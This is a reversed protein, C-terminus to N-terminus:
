KITLSITKIVLNNVPQSQDTVQITLAYTGPVNVISTADTSTVQGDSSLTFGLNALTDPGTTVDSFTFYKNPGNAVISSAYPESHTAAPLTATVIHLVPNPIHDIGFPTTVGTTAVATGATTTFPLVSNPASLTVLGFAGDPRFAIGIPKDSGPTPTSFGSVLSFQTSGVLATEFGLVKGTDKGAVWVMQADPSVRVGTPNATIFTSYVQVLTGATPAATFTVSMAGTAYNVTGSAIGTGTISGNGNDLGTVAGAVVQLSGPNIPTPTYDGTFTTTTGDAPNPSLTVAPSATTLNITGLLTEFTASNPNTDIISLGALTAGNTQVVYAYLGDPSIDIHTPTGYTATAELSICSDANPHHAPVIDKGFNPSTPEVDFVCVENGGARVVYAHTVRNPSVFFSSAVKLDVPGTGPYSGHLFTGPSGVVTGFTGSSPNGDIVQINDSGANAVYVNVADPSTLSGPIAQPGVAVASTDGAANDLGSNNTVITDVGTLTNHLYVQNAGPDAIFMYTGNGSAALYNPTSGRSPSVASGVQTVSGPGGSTDFVAYKNSGNSGVLAQSNLINATFKASPCTGATSCPPTTANGDDTVSVTVTEGQGEKTPTGFLFADGTPNLVATSTIATGTINDSSGTSWTYQAQANNPSGTGGCTGTGLPAQCTFLVSYPQNLEGNPLVCAPYAGIGCTPAVLAQTPIVIEPDVTLSVTTPPTCSPGPLISCPDTTTTGAPTTASPIDTVKVQPNYTGVAGTLSPNATCSEETAGFSSCTFGPPFSALTPSFVYGTALGNSATYFATALGNTGYGRGTVGDPWTYDPYSGLNVILGLQADVKLSQPGSPSATGAPIASNAIDTVTVSPSYTGTGVTPSVPAATCTLTTLPSNGNCSFGAPFAASPTTAGTGNPTISAYANSGNLLGGTATYVLPTCASTGGPSCLLDAKVGYDRHVVADPFPSTLNSSIALPPLVTLSSNSSTVSNSPTSVNAADAVTVNLNNLTGASGGVSSASCNGNNTTTPCTFGAPFNNPTFTYGGLGPTAAPVTYTLPTCSGGSCAAGTGYRRGVVGAPIMSPPTVTMEANITIARSLSQLASPTVANATDSVTIQFPYTGPAATIASFGASCTVQNHAANTSCAVPAPVGNAAPAVVSSPVTLTYGTGGSNGGTADYVLAKFGAGTNGYTRSTVGPAPPDVGTADSSWALPAVVALTDVRASLPDSAATASPTAANGTDTVAVNPNYTGVSAAIGPAPASCTYTASNSVAPCVIGTPMSGPTSAPFVYGGLGGSATYITPVCAGGAGTCGTGSGYPRNSVANVWSSGQNVALTIPPNAVLSLTSTIPTTSTAPVAQAGTVADTIQTETASVTVAFTGSTTLSSSSLLCKTRTSDLAVTLGPNSPTVLVLTCATLPGNGVTLGAQTTGLNTAVPQSLPAVGYTRGQVGQALTSTTFAFEPLITLTYAYSGTIPPTSNDAAQVTFTYQGAAPASPMGLICYYATGGSGPLAGPVVTMGSPVSNGSLSCSAVVDGPSAATALSTSIYASYAHGAIANPLPVTRLSLSSPGSTGTNNGPVGGSGGCSSLLTSIIAAFGFLVISRRAGM